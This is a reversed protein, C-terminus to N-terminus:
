RRLRVEVIVQDLPPVTVLLTENDVKAEGLWPAITALFGFRSRVRVTAPTREHNFLGVVRRLPDQDVNVVWQVPAGTVEVLSLSQVYGALVRQFCQLLKHKLPVDVGPQPDATEASVYRPVTCCVVRGRGVRHEWLVGDGHESLALAAAGASRVLRYSYPEEVLVEGAPLLVSRQAARRGGLPELGTLQRDLLAFATDDIVLEGGGRVFAALRAGLQPDRSVEGLLVVTQYRNLCEAGADTLIVDFQDGHPTATLFGREDRYYSCDQYQPWIWRCFADVAVDGREYPLNGWVLNRQGTYLHRPPVWGADQDLMLAVPTYPVGRDRHRKAFAVADVHTQGVPSLKPDGGADKEKLWYASEFSNSASGYLWSSYWLRKMLEVSTGKDPGHDPGVSDYSKYDWRNFVSICNWTLVGFQKAAGRLWAWQMIDSPLGQAAEIGVMRQGMRASLHAFNLSSLLVMHDFHRDHIKQHWAQALARAERRNAPTYRPAYSGVYRGDQEGMEYGLFRRGMLKQMQEHQAQDPAADGFGGNWPEDPVYGWISGVLLNRAMAREAAAPWGAGLFNGLHPKVWRGFDHREFHLRLDRESLGCQVSGVFDGGLDAWTVPNKVRSWRSPDVRERDRVLPMTALPRTAWWKAGRGGTAQASLARAAQEAATAVQLVVVRDLDPVTVAGDFLLPRADTQVTVEARYRGPALAGAPLVLDTVTGGPQAESQSVTLGQGDGYSDSLRGLLRARQWPEPLRLRLGVREGGAPLLQVTVAGTRGALGVADRLSLREVVRYRGAWGAEGLKIAMPGAPGALPVRGTGVQGAGQRAWVLAVPRGDVVLAAPQAAVVRLRLEPPTVLGFVLAEGLPLPVARQWDPEGDGVTALPWCALRAGDLPLREPLPLIQTGIRFDDLLLEFKEGSNPPKQNHVSVFVQVLRGTKLPGPKLPDDTWALRFDERRVTWEAAQGIVPRQNTVDWWGGQDCHAFIRLNAVPRDIRYRVAIFDAQPWSVPTPPMLMAGKDFHGLTSHDDFAVRLARTGGLATTEVVGFTPKAWNDYAVWGAPLGAEFDARYVEDTVEPAAALLALLLLNM